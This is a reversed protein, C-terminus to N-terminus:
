FIMTALMDLGDESMKGHKEMKKKKENFQTTVINKYAYDEWKYSMCKNMKEQCSLNVNAWRHLNHSSEKGILRFLM